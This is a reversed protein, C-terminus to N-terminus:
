RRPRKVRECRRVKDTRDVTASDRRGSGCDVTDRKGNRATLSDNGSGGTLSNASKGGDLRDNGAGGDLRDRGVDGKLRDNGAGGLLRDNGKGGSLSDRGGAGYLADNGDGGSLKDNGDRRAQASLATALKWTRALKGCADGWLTDKGALGNITDNGFLGCILDPGPTGNLIDDGDTALGGPPLSSRAPDLPFADAEDPVGDNDDDPDCPNELGDGDTDRRDSSSVLPCGDLGDVVGDNDDDSDCPDGLGDGEHDAQDPNPTSVCNDSPDLVGDADRDRIPSEDAGIDPASGMIRAEGDIDFSGLLPDATGGDITPSSPHQHYDGASPNAFVPDVNTQNGGGDVVGDGLVTAPRYNSYSMNIRAAGVPCIGSSTVLDYAAGRVIVNKASVESQPCMSGSTTAMMAACCQDTVIATVNRLAHTGARANVAPEDAAVVISNRLLTDGELRVEGTSFLDEAVKGAGTLNLQTQTQLELHRATGGEPDNLMLAPAVLRPRPQGDAGHISVNDQEIVVDSESYDGPAVIVEDGDVSVSEVAYELDCPAWFTPPPPPPTCDGSTAGGPVVYRPTATAPAAAVLVGVLCTTVALHVMKTRSDQM